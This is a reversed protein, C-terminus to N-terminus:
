KWIVPFRPNDTLKEWGEVEIVQTGPDIGKGGFCRNEGGLVGEWRPSAKEV